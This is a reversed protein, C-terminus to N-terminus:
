EEKFLCKIPPSEKKTLISCATGDDLDGYIGGICLAKPKKRVCLFFKDPSSNYAKGLDSGKLDEERLFAKGQNKEILIKLQNQLNEGARGLSQLLDPNIEYKDLDYQYSYIKAKEALDSLEQCAGEGKKNFSYNKNDNWIAYGINPIPDSGLNNKCGPLFSCALGPTFDPSTKEGWNYGGKIFDWKTASTICIKDPIIANDLIPGRYLGHCVAKTVNSSNDECLTFQAEPYQNKQNCFFRDRKGAAEIFLLGQGTKESKQYIKCLERNETIIARIFNPNNGTFSPIIPTIEAFFRGLWAADSRYGIELKNENLVKKEEIELKSFYDLRLPVNQNKKNQDMKEEPETNKYTFPTDDNNELILPTITIGPNLPCTSIKTGDSLFYGEGQRANICLDCRTLNLDGMINAQKSPLFNPGLYLDPGILDGQLAKIKFLEVAQFKENFKNTYTAYCPFFSGLESDAREELAPRPFNGLNTVEKGSILSIQILDPNAKTIQATFFLDSYQVKTLNKNNLLDLKLNVVQQLDSGLMVKVQGFPKSFTSDQLTKSDSIQPVEFTIQPIIGPTFPPPTVMSKDAVCARGIPQNNEIWFICVLNEKQSTQLNKNNKDLFNFKDSTVRAVCIKNELDIKTYLDGSTVKNLSLLKGPKLCDEPQDLIDQNDLIIPESQYNNYCADSSLTVFLPMSCRWHQIQYQYTKKQWDLLTAKITTTLNYRNSINKILSRTYCDSNLITDKYYCRNCDQDMYSYGWWSGPCLPKASAQEVLLLLFIVLIKVM